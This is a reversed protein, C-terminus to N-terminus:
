TNSLVIQTGAARIEAPTLGKVSGATGVPMFAPTAVVGHPTALRAMRPATAGGRELTFSPKAVSLRRPRGSHRDPVGQAEDPANARIGLARRRADQQGRRSSALEIAMREADALPVISKETRIMTLVAAGSGGAGVIELPLHEPLIWERRSSIAREIVSGFGRM